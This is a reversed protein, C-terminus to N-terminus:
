DDFSFLEQGKSQFSTQELLHLTHLSQRLSDELADLNDIPYGLEDGFADPSNRDGHDKYPSDSLQNGLLYQPIM